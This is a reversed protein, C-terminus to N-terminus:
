QLWQENTDLSPFATYTETGKKRCSRNRQPQGSPAWGQGAEPNM